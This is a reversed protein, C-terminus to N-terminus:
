LRRIPWSTVTGARAIERCPNCSLLYLNAFLVERDGNSYIDNADNSEAAQALFLGCQVLPNFM